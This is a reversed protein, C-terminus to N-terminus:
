RFNSNADNNLYSIGVLSLRNGDAGPYRLTVQIKKINTGLTSIVIEREYEPVALSNNTVDDSTGYRGDPGPGTVLDDATGFIGDQGPATSIPKFGTPFGAFTQSAGINDVQGTNAIQGFTLRKTNRLTEMQELMATITLKSESMDRLRKTMSLGHAMTAVLGLLAILLVAMAVVVEILTFGAEGRRRLGVGTSARETFTSAPM